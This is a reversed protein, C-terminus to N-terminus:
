HLDYIKSYKNEVYHMFNSFNLESGTIQKCLENAKLTRGHRHIKERLWLLLPLLNGNAVENELNPIEEQAQQYFQAAYFSGQSYTPFYGFSGHSWHVDQLVGQSDSPVDIGLYERYKHNWTGPLADVNIKGEMLDCEIEFRILVHLHYTLEDANTRVLSPGVANIAKYFDNLTVGSLNEPFLKQLKNYNFKWFSISRGANNEWLRSQSEHIALSLYEGSPLGYNEIDLGQEYLAHGGEHLCSWAMERFDNENIRTTIRVDKSNFNTTFPHSSIDQRGSNFDYHMQRLLEIGFDWQKQRDYHKTLFSTNIKERSIIKRVFPVLREKVEVFLIKLAATTSGPEFQNLLADYPHNKYGLLECEKRKLEVLRKLYPSFLDFDNERKAKQWANFSESITQNLKIVFENPYKKQDSVQRFTELVNAKETKGITHDNKLELLIKELSVSTVMEHVIGSLTAIQKGRTAAGQEPMYVEQDWQLVDSAYKVDAIKQLHEKYESYRNNM